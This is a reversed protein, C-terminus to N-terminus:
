EGVSRGEGRHMWEGDSAVVLHMRKRRGPKCAGGPESEGRGSDRVITVSIGQESKDRGDTSGGTALV